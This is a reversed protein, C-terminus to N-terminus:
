WLYTPEFPRIEVLTRQWKRLAATLTTASSATHVVLTKHRTAPHSANHCIKDYGRASRGRAATALLQQITTQNVIKLFTSVIVRPTM